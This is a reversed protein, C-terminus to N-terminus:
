RTAPFVQLCRSLSTEACRLIGPFCFLITQVQEVYFTDQSLKHQSKTSCLYLCQSAEGPSLKFCRSVVQFVQLLHHLRHEQDATQQETENRWSRYSTRRWTTVGWKTEPWIVPSLRLVDPPCFSFSLPKIQPVLSSPCLCLVPSTVSYKRLVTSPSNSYYLLLTSGGSRVTLM